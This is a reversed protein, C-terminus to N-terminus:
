KCLGFEKFATLVTAKMAHDHGGDKVKDNKDPAVAVLKKLKRATKKGTLFKEEEDDLIGTIADKTGYGYVVNHLNVPTLKEIYNYMDSAAVIRAINARLTDDKLAKEIVTPDIASNRYDSATNFLKLTKADSGYAFWHGTQAAHKWGKEPVKLRGGTIVYGDAINGHEAIQLQTVWVGYSLAVVYVKKAQKNKFNKGNKFYQIVDALTKASHLVAEKAVESSLTRKFWDPYLTQVQHSIAVIYPTTICTYPEARIYSETGSLSPTPGGQSIILVTEIADYTDSASSKDQKFLTTVARTDTKWPRQTEASGQKTDDTTNDPLGIQCGSITLMFSCIMLVTNRNKIM